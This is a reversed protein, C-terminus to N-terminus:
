QESSKTTSARKKKAPSNSTDTSNQLKGLILQRNVEFEKSIEMAKKSVFIMLEVGQTGGNLFIEGAIEPSFAVDQKLEQDGNENIKLIDFGQWDEILFAEAKYQFFHFPKKNEDDPQARYLIGAEENKALYLENNASKIKVRQQKDGDKKYDFWKATNTSTGIGFAM